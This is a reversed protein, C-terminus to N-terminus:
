LSHYNEIWFSDSKVMANLITLVKRMCATLAVKKPKGKGVLKQYFTRIVKNFRVAALVGMYLISRIQKRGGWVIRKGKFVGSDCNFPAVGVLACIKKENIIGLEPVHSVLARSITPGIGTMSKVIEAKRQLIPSKKIFESIEKDIKDIETKLWDLHAQIRNKILKTARHIRNKEMVSIEVLQCRRSMLAALEKQNQDPLHRVQPRVAEAFHALVEADIKDTKALKGTAKAFDRVQRPNILVVPFGHHALAAVIRTEYGGTAELLIINPRTKVMHEVVVEVGQDTYEESFSVGQPRIFGDLRDKSVDIGVFTIAISM